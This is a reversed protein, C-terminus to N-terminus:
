KLCIKGWVSHEPLDGIEGAFALSKKLCGFKMTIFRM